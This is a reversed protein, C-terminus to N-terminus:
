VSNRGALGYNRMVRVGVGSGAASSVVKSVRDIVEPQPEEPELACDRM